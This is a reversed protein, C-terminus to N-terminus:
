SELKLLKASLPMWLSKKPSIKEPPIKTPPSKIRIGYM